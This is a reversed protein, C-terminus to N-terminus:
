TPMPTLRNIVEPLESLIKEAEEKTEFSEESIYGTDPEAGVAHLSIQWNPSWSYRSRNILSATMEEGAALRAGFAAWHRDRFIRACDPIAADVKKRLAEMMDKAEPGSCMMQTNRGIALAYELAPLAALPVDLALSDGGNSGLRAQNDRGCTPCTPM